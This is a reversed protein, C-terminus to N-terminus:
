SCANLLARERKKAGKAVVKKDQLVVWRQFDQKFSRTSAPAKDAPGDSDEDDSSPEPTKLAKKAQWKAKERDKGALNYKRTNRTDNYNEGEFAFSDFNGNTNNDISSISAM